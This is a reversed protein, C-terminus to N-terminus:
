KITIQNKIWFNCKILQYKCLLPYQVGKPNSYSTAFTRVTVEKLRSKIENKIAFYKAVFNM